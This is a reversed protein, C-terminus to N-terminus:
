LAPTLSGRSGAARPSVQDGAGDKMGQPRRGDEDKGCDQREPKQEREARQPDAVLKAGRSGVIGHEALASRRYEAHNAPVTAGASVTNGAAIAAITPSASRM